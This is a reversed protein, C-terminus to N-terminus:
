VPRLLPLERAAIALAEDAPVGLAKLFLEAVDRGAERWTGHGELVVAVATLVAGSLMTVAATFQEPRLVFRGSAIGHRLEQSPGAELLSRLTPTTVGFRVIFRGWAPEEHARRVYIRMGDAVRQAPDPVQALSAEIRTSMESTLKTAVDQFLSDLTEFHNYVTGRAVGAAQALDTVSVHTAGREAFLRVAADQLRDQINTM